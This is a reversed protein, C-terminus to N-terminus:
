LGERASQFATSGRCASAGGKAASAELGRARAEAAQTVSEADRLAQVADAQRKDAIAKLQEISANQDHIASTCREVSALTIKHKDIELLRGAEANDYLKRNHRADSRAFALSIALFALALGGGVLKWNKLLWPGLTLLAPM